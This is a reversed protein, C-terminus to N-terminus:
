RKLTYKLIKKTLKKSVSNKNETRGQFQETTLFVQWNKNWIKITDYYSGSAVLYNSDFAVTRLLGASNKDWLKITKDDSASALVSNSEFAVAYVIDTHGTRSRM